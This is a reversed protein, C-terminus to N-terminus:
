PFNSLNYVGRVPYPQASNLVESVAATGHRVLVDNLDKCGFPYEVFLCRAATLRHVLDAALQQGPPDNDVALIFRAIRKLRERNNWLFEDKGAQDSGHEEIDHKRVPPAGDPVSVTFPWGSDIASLADLEGETIVLPMGNGLQPDDLVDANWFTK